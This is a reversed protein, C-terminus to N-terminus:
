PLKEPVIATSPKHFLDAVNKAASAEGATPIVPVQGKFKAYALGEAATPKYGQEAAKELKLAAKEAIESAKAGRGLKGVMGLKGMGGLLLDQSAPLAFNAATNLIEANQEAMGPVKGGSLDLQSGLAKSAIEIARNRPENLQELPENIQEFASGLGFNPTTHKLAKQAILKATPNKATAALINASDKFRPDFAANTSRIQNPEFVLAEDLQGSPNLIKASDFGRGAAEKALTPDPTSQYGKVLPKEMRANLEMVSGGGEKDLRSAVDKFKKLAATAEDSYQPAGNKTPTNKSLEEWKKFAEQYEPSSKKVAEKAYYGATSKDPTLYVGPGWDSYQASGIKNKDFEKIEKAGGHFWTEEGFGLDKARVDRSGYVTDLAELYAKKEAGQLKTAIEPSNIRSLLAQAAEFEANASKAAVKGAIQKALKARSM